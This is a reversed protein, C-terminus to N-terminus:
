LLYSLLSIRIFCTIIPVAPCTSWPFVASILAGIILPLCFIINQKFQKFPNSIIRVLDQYVGMIIAAISGSFGPAFLSIGLFFGSFIRYLFKAM